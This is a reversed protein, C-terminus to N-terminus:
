YRLVNSEINAAKTNATIRERFHRNEPNALVSAIFKSTELQLQALRNQLMENRQVLNITKIAISLLGDVHTHYKPLQQQQQMQPQKIPERVFVYSRDKEEDDDDDDEDMGSSHDCFKATTKNYGCGSCNSNSCNNNATTPQLVTKIIFQKNNNSSSSHPCVLQRSTKNYDFEMRKLHKTQESKLERVHGNAASTSGSAVRRAKQPLRSPMRVGRRRKRRGTSNM